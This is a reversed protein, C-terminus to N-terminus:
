VFEVPWEVSGLEETTLRQNQLLRPWLCFLQQYLRFPFFPPPLPLNLLWYEVRALSCRFGAAVMAAPETDM